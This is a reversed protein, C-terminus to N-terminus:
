ARASSGVGSGSSAVGKRMISAAVGPVFRVLWPLANIRGVYVESRTRRLGLMLAAASYVLADPKPTLGTGSRVNVIAGDQSRRLLRLAAHTTTIVATLNVAVEQDIRGGISAEDPLLYNHQVGALRQADRGCIM